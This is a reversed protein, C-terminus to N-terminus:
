VTHTVVSYTPLLVPTHSSYAKWSSRPGVKRIGGDAHAVSDKSLDPKPEMSLMVLDKRAGGM